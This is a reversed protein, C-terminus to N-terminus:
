FFDDLKLDKKTVKPKPQVPETEKKSLPHHIGMEKAERLKDEDLDSKRQFDKSFLDQQTVRAGRLLAAEDWDFVETVRALSAAVRRAYYEYDVQHEFPRGTLWPEAEQKSKGGSEVIVYSVKM